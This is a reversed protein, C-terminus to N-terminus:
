VLADLEDHTTAANVAAVKSDATAQAAAIAEATHTGPTMENQMNMRAVAFNANSIMSNKRDEVTIDVADWIIQVPDVNLDYRHAAFQQRHAVLEARVEVANRWGEQGEPPASDWVQKVEGDLVQVFLAM